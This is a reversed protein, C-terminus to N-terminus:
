GRKGFFEKMAKWLDDKKGITCLRVKGGSVLPGYVTRLATLFKTDEEEYLHTELFCLRTLDPMLKTLKSLAAEHDWNEGDTMQIIYIDVDGKDIRRKVQTKREYDRGTMMADLIDYAPGFSTGGSSQLRYYNEESEEWAFDNHAIYVREVKPYFEKLWTDVLFSLIYSAELDAPTVSQSIDRIYIVLADKSPKYKVKPFRYRLDDEDIKIRLSDGPKMEGSVIQRDVMAYLTEDLDLLSESGRKSIAPYTIKDIEKKRRSPKITELELENKMWSVLDKITIDEYIAEVVGRGGKKGGAGGESPFVKDGEKGPGSGIGPTWPGYKIHPLHVIPIRLRIVEGRKMSGLEIYKLQGITRKKAEEVRKRYKKRASGIPDSSM